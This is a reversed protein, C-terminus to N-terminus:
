VFHQAVSSNLYFPSDNLNHVMPEEVDRVKESNNNTLMETKPFQPGTFLLIDLGM